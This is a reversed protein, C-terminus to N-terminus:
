GNQLNGGSAARLMSMIEIKSKINGTGTSKPKFMELLFKNRDFKKPKTKRM